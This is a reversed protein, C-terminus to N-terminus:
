MRILKGEQNYMNIRVGLNESLKLFMETNATKDYVAGSPIKGSIQLNGLKLKAGLCYLCAGFFTDELGYYGDLMSHFCRNQMFTLKRVRRVFSTKVILGATAALDYSNHYRERRHDKEALAFSCDCKSMEDVILERTLNFPIRDGDFMVIYDSEEKLIEDLVMDRMKGALFGEGEKNEVFREGYSRLIEASNDKCRDLGWFREFGETAKIMKPISDAQDKNIIQVIIRDM